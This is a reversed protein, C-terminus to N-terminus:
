DILIEKKPLISIQVGSCKKIPVSINYVAGSCVM